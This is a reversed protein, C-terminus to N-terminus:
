KHAAIKVVDLVNKGLTFQIIESGSFLACLAVITTWNACTRKKEIQVLTKKSIGLVAAMRDQTYDNEVRILKIKASLSHIISKQDMTSVMGIVTEM